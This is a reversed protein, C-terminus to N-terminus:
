RRSEPSEHQYALLDEETIDAEICRKVIEVMYESTVRYDLYRWNQKFFEPGLPVQAGNQDLAFLEDVRAWRQDPTLESHHVGWADLRKGTKVLHKFHEEPSGSFVMNSRLKTYTKALIHLLRSDLLITTREHEDHNALTEGMPRSGEQVTRLLRSYAASNNEAKDAEPFYTGSVKFGKRAAEESIEAEVEECKAQADMKSLREVEETSYNFKETPDKVASSSERSLKPTPSPTGHAGGDDEEEADETKQAM